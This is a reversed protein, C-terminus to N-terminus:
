PSAARHHHTNHLSLVVPAAKHRYVGHRCTRARPARYMYAERCIVAAATKHGQLGGVDGIGDDVGELNRFALQRCHGEVVVVTHCKCAAACYFVARRSKHGAASGKHRTGPRYHKGVGRKIIEIWETRHIVSGASLGYLYRCRHRHRQGITLIEIRAHRHPPSREAISHVAAAYRRGALQCQLYRRTLRYSYLHRSQRRSQQVETEVLAACGRHHQAAVRYCAAAPLM